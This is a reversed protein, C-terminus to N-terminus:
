RNKDHCTFASEDFNSRLRLGVPQHRSDGVNLGTQPVRIGLTTSYTRPYTCQKSECLNVTSDNSGM